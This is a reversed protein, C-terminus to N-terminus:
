IEDSGAVPDIEADEDDDDTNPEGFQCYVKM